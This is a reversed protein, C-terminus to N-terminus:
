ETDLDFEVKAVFMNLALEEQKQRIQSINQIEERQKKDMLVNSFVLFSSKKPSDKRQLLPFKSYGFRM